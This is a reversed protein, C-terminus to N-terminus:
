AEAPVGRSLLVALRLLIEVEGMEPPTVLNHPSRLDRVDIFHREDNKTTAEEDKPEVPRQRPDKKSM